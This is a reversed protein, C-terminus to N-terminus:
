RIEHNETANGAAFVFATLGALAAGSRSLRKNVPPINRAEM